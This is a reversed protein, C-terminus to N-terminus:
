ETSDNSMLLHAPHNDLVARVYDGLICLRDGTSCFSGTRAPSPIGTVVAGDAPSPSGPNRSYVTREEEFSQSPFIHLVRATITTVQGGASTVTYLTGASYDKGTTGGPFGDQYNTMDAIVPFGGVTRQRIFNGHMHGMLVLTPKVILKKDIGKGLPSLSGDEDMYYHTAIIVEQRTSSTLSARLRSFEGATLTKDAYNIGVFDFDAVSTMSNRGPERTHSTYYEYNRGYDADHNGAVTYVPITTHNRARSYTDWEEQSNWTNVLDGTLIIATINYPEKVSDLYSFTLNYTAPFCSALNQTDSLHVFSYTTNKGPPLSSAPVIVSCLLFILLVSCFRIPFYMDDSIM